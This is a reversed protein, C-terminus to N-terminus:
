TNLRPFSKGILMLESLVDAIAEELQMCCEGSVRIAQCIIRHRSIKNLLLHISPIKISGDHLLTTCDTVEDDGLTLAPKTSV